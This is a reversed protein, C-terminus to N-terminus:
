QVSEPPLKYKSRDARKIPAAAPLDSGSEGLKAWGSVTAEEFASELPLTIRRDKRLRSILRTLLLSHGGLEFFNDHIGIGRIELAQEWLALLSRQLETHAPAFATGLDPRPMFSVAEGDVKALAADPKSRLEDLMRDLDRTGISVQSPSFSGLITEVIRMAEENALGSGFDMELARHERVSPKSRERPASGGSRTAKLLFGRAAVLLAGSDGYVDVDLRMENAAGARLKTRSSMAAELPALVVLREFRSPLLHDDAGGSALCRQAAGIAMDLLGPHLPTAALEGSSRLLLRVEADGRSAAIGALCDWEPGFVLLPHVYEGPVPVLGSVEPLAEFLETKTPRAVSATLHEILDDDGPGASSVVVARSRNRVPGLEIRLLRQERSALILPAHFRLDQLEFPVFGTGGGAIATGILAVYGAGPLVADGNRLRHQGLYWLSDPTVMGFYHESGDADQRHWTLVAHCTLDADRPPAPARGMSAALKAAMGADRWISWQVAIHRADSSARDAEAAFADLYANASTYDVQGPAGALVSLSSFYLFFRPHFRRLAQLAQTGQLKPWLVRHAADLTKRAILNDELVGAAHFVGDLRAIGLGDLGNTLADQDAVDAAIVQVSGGFSAIRRLLHLRRRIEDGPALSAIVANWDGEAPLAQRGVMVIRAHYRQSLYEALVQGAGGFAGTILYTGGARLGPAAPHAQAPLRVRSASPLMRRRNRWAVTAVEDASRMEDVISQVCEEPFQRIDRSALDLWCARANAVEQTVTRVPGAVLAQHPAVTQGLTQADATVVLLRPQVTFLDLRKVLALLYDFCVATASAEDALDAPWAYVIHSCGQAAGVVCEWDEARDPRIRLLGEEREFRPGVELAIVEEAIGALARALAKGLGNAGGFVLVRGLARGASGSSVTHWDTVYFWDDFAARAATQPATTTPAREGPELWYRQRQFPYTPLARRRGKSPQGWKSWDIDVGHAWLSGGATYFFDDSPTRDEPHPLTGLTAAEKLGAKVFAGLAAGPGVELFVVPGLAQLQQVGAAFDVTERLHRSWYDRSMLQEDTLWRGSLNSVVKCSLAAARPMRAVEQAFTELIPDLTHSHFAHSVELRRPGAGLADLREFLADIADFAGSWVTLGPGNIAALSVDGTVHRAVAEAPMAVALMAGGPLSAILEGRRCVVRLATDLTFAGALCAATYEGLSHGIMAVPEVGKSMLSMALAYEVAFLAPQTIATSRLAAVADAAGEAPFLARRVDGRGLRDFVAFCDDLASRYAADAEYLHRSMGPYQAGQGPFMFVVQPPRAAARVVRFKADLRSRVQDISRGVVVTRHEMPVRGNALTWAVDPLEAEETEGLHRAINCAAQSLASPTKASLPFMLPAALAGAPRGPARAPAEQLVVHANTGGVGLSSIGARLPAGLAPWDGLRANVFFPTAPFDIEPNPSRYHLSAPLSRHQMALAIKILGVVGAATDLHGINTKVSGLACYQRRNTAFGQTLALVEIPDGIKTATGHAEVYGITEAPVDAVAIAEAVAEAHGDVSPALYGAKGAGDNNVASGRIVARIEDGDALADALRRLVVVGCGSGFVTGGAEADMSRCHGDPSRVEEERYLYGIGQPVDVTAGGALALDCEGSLLSQCAMHVAVLSTSCATQVNVSPGRLDLHYSVRTALFDKDNATHRLLFEGMEAVLDPRTMVNKILYWHMGSGAFVAINGSASRPTHGADELASWACELFKRHQPDMVRAERPSLGFFAPDFQDSGELPVGARVYAPDALDSESVGAARLAEESYRRVSERGDVLNRWFQSPTDADPVYCAMGVIAISTQPPSEHEASM